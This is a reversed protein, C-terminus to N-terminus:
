LFFGVLDYVIWRWFNVFYSYQSTYYGPFLDKEGFKYFSCAFFSNYVRGIFLLSYTGNRMFINSVKTLTPIKASQEASQRADTGSPWHEMASKLSFAGRRSQSPWRRTSLSCCQCKQWGQIASSRATWNLSYDPMCAKVCIQTWTWIPEDPRCQVLHTSSWCLWAPSSGRSM